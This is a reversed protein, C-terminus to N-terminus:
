RGSAPLCVREPATVPRAVIQTSAMSGAVRCRRTAYRASVQPMRHLSTEEPAAPLATTTKGVASVVFSWARIAGNTWGLM